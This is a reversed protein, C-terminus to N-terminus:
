AETETHWGHVITWRRVISSIVKYNHTYM